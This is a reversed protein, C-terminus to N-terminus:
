LVFFNRGADVDAIEGKSCVLVNGISHAQVHDADIGRTGTVKSARRAEEGYKIQKAM